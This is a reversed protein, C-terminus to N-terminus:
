RSKKATILSAALMKAIEECDGLLGQLRKKSVLDAAILLRLWYHAERAEKLSIHYKAIFDARSQAGKGEEINAGISTGARLLQNAVVKLNRHKDQLFCCLKVIRISFQFSRDALNATQNPNTIAM